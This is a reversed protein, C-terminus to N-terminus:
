ISFKFLNFFFDSYGTYIYLKFITFCRQSKVIKKEKYKSKMLKNKTTSSSSLSIGFVVATSRGDNKSSKISSLLHIRQEYTCVYIDWMMLSFNSSVCKEWNKGFTLYFRIESKWGVLDTSQFKMDFNAMKIVDIFQDTKLALILSCIVIIQNLMQFLFMALIILM